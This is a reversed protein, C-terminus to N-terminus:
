LEARALVWLDYEQPDKKRQFQNIRLVAFPKRAQGAHLPLLFGAHESYSDVNKGDFGLSWFEPVRFGYEAVYARMVDALTDGDPLVSRDRNLQQVLKRARAVHEADKTSPRQRKAAPPSAPEEGRGRKSGVVRDFNDSMEDLMASQDRGSDGPNHM